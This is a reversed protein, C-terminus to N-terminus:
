PAIALLFSANGGGGYKLALSLSRVLSLDAVHRELSPSASRVFKVRNQQLYRRHSEIPKERQRGSQNQDGSRRGNICNGIRGIHRHCAGRHVKMQVLRGIRQGVAEIAAGGDREISRGIAGLREHEARRAVREVDEGFLVGRNAPADGGAINQGGLFADNNALGGVAQALRRSLAAERDDAVVATQQGPEVARAAHVYAM